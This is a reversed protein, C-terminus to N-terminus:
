KEPVEFSTTLVSENDNEDRVTFMISHEGPNLDQLVLSFQETTADNLGDEPFAAQEEGGDLIYTASKVISFSDVAKFVLTYGRTFDQESILKLKPATNDILWPESIIEGTLEEGWPNDLRDTAIVKFRYYGEELGTTNFSHVPAEIDTALPVWRDTEERMMYLSYLLRDGNPDEANWGASLFGDEGLFRLQQQAQLPQQAQPTSQGSLLQQVNVQPPNPKITMVEVGEPVFNIQEIEPAANALRYFLRVDKLTASSSESTGEETSWEAQYQLYRANPNRIKMSDSLTQWQSWTDDPEPTNGTRTKWVPQQDGGSIRPRLNGWNAVQHADVVSSEFTGSEALAGSFRYVTAPNSTIIYYDGSDDNVPLIRSVEGGDEADLMHTWDNQGKIDYLAGDNGVGVLWGDDKYPVLSFIDSKEQSWLVHTFGSMDVYMLPGVTAKPHPLAPQAAQANAQGNSNGNSSKAASSGDKVGYLSVIIRKEVEPIITTIEEAPFSAVVLSEDDHNVRYLVADPGAAVYLYGTEDFTIRNFHTAKSTLIPEVEDGYKYDAPLKYLKAEDGTAVYLEGSTNFAIDWIYATDPDFFLEPAEGEVLRYIAGQPSTGVYLAGDPGIALARTLVQDPDFLVTAEGETDVKYVIGENGTSLILNGEDDLLANWVTAASDVEAIKELAPALNLAGVNSLSIHERKGSAFADYGRHSLERTQVACLTSASLIFALLSTLIPRQM